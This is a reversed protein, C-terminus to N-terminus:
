ASAPNVRRAFFCVSFSLGRAGGAAARGQGRHIAAPLQGRCGGRLVINVFVASSSLRAAQAFYLVIDGNHDPASMEGSLLVPQLNM